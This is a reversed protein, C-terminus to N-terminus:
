RALFGSSRRIMRTIKELEIEISVEVADAGASLQFPFRMTVDLDHPEDFAERGIELGDGVESPVVPLGNTLDAPLEGEEAALQVKETAIQDGDVAALELGDVAAPLVEGLLLEFSGDLLQVFVDVAVQIILLDDPKRSFPM